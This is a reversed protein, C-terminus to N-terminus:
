FIGCARTDIRGPIELAYPSLPKTPRTVLRALTSLTQRVAWKLSHLHWISKCSVLDSALSNLNQRNPSHYQFESKEFDLKKVFNRLHPNEKFTKHLQNGNRFSNPRDGGFHLSQYLLPKGIRNFQKCTLSIACVTAINPDEQKSYAVALTLIIDLIEESLDNIPSMKSNFKSILMCNASLPGRM